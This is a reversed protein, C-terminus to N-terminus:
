VGDGAQAPALPQSPLKAVAAAPAAVVANTPKRATVKLKQSAILQSPDDNNDDGLIDFPNGTAM